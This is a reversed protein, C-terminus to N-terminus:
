SKKTAKSDGAEVLHKLLPFAINRHLIRTDYDHEYWTQINSCHGWFEVDPPIKDVRYGNRPELTTDLKEAAEDISQIEDFSKIEDVPINLLLFKCQKFIQENIYINTRNYELRLTIFDNVKFEKLETANM